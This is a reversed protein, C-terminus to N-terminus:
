GPSCEPPRVHLRSSVRTTRHAVTHPSNQLVIVNNLALPTHPLPLLVTWAFARGDLAPHCRLSGVLMFFFFRGAAHEMFGCNGALAENIVQPSLSGLVPLLPEAQTTTKLALHREVTFPGCRSLFRLPASPWGSATCTSACSRHRTSFGCSTDTCGRSRAHDLRGHARPYPRVLTGFGPATLINITAALGIFFATGVHCLRIAM